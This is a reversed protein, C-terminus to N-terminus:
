RAWGLKRRISCLGRFRNRHHSTAKAEVVTSHPRDRKAITHLLTFKSRTTNKFARRGEGEGSAPPDLAALPPNDKRVSSVGEGFGRVEAEVRGEPPHLKFLGLQFASLYASVM